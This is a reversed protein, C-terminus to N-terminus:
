LSTLVGRGAFGVIRDLSEVFMREVGDLNRMSWLIEANTWATDRAKEVSFNGLVDDLRGLVHEDIWLELRGEFHQRLSEMEQAFILNVKDYDPRQSGSDPPRGLQECTAVVSLPLDFNVHANVGAVAFQMPAIREHSRREFLADWSRPAGREPDADYARLADLYRNAFVVDLRTLFDADEFEGREIWELVRNTIVHYLFNFCAIGDHQRRPANAEVWTQISAMRGIAEPVTAVPPLGFPSPGTAGGGVDVAGSASLAPARVGATLDTM